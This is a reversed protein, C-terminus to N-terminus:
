GRSHRWRWLALASLLSVTGALAVLPMASATQPLETRATVAGTTGVAQQDPPSGPSTLTGHEVPGTPTVPAPADDANVPTEDGGPSVRALEAIKLEEATASQAHAMLVPEAGGRALLMAQEEPYIFEHGTREGPYWWIKVAAPTTSPTEMFHIEPEDPVDLRQAPISLLMAYANRGDESLVQVVKRSGTPDALRFLYTGAQLTVGPLTIPQSFTFYTRKDIPGQAHADAAAFWVLLAAVCSSVTIKMLMIM